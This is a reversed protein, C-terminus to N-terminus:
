ENWSLVVKRTQLPFQPPGVTLFRRDYQWDPMYGTSAVVVGLVVTYSGLRGRERQIVSGVVTLTGRPSGSSYNEVEFSTNLAMIAGHIECDTGNATNDEVIIDEEAILGLMDQSDPFLRPDELYVVDDEIHIDGGSYLTVQGHVTGEVHIDHSGTTMITGNYDSLNKTGLDYASNNGYDYTGDANFRLWVEFSYVDGGNNASDIVAPLSFPLSIGPADLEYGGYFQADPSGSYDFSSSTSTVKSFFVPTGSMNLEDNAHVPGYVTDGTTFYLGNPWSDLFLAYYSFAPQAVTVQVSDTVGNYVGVATVLARATVLATDLNADEVTARFTGGNYITTDVVLGRLSFDRYLESVAINAASNAMNRAVMRSYREFSSESLDLTRENVNYLMRGMVSSLGLAILLMARGM